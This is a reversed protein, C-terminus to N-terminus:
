ITSAREIAERKLKAFVTKVQAETAELSGSNAIVYDARRAKEDDPLQAASRRELEARAAEITTSTRRALRESKQAAECTVVVIRDFHSDVGAEYILAAEVIAVASPDHRGIENMWEDQRRIVAPHIIANLEAIRSTATNPLPEASTHPRPQAGDEGPRLGPAAGSTFVANALKARDITGDAALIDRGFRAVIENYVAEGPHMLDHAVKDAQIVHAGLRAFMEGVVSKGCAMGGTLGVKLV